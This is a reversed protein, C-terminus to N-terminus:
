EFVLAEFNAEVVANKIEAVIDPVVIDCGFFDLEDFILEGFKEGVVSFDCHENEIAPIGGPASDRVGFDREVFDVGEDFFELGVANDGLEVGALIGWGREVVGIDFREFLVCALVEWGIAGDGGLGADGEGIAPEPFGAVFIAREFREFGDDILPKDGLVLCVAVENEVGGRVAFAFKGGVDDGAKGFDTFGPGVGTFRSWDVGVNDDGGVVESGTARDM